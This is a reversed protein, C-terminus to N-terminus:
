PAGARLAAVLFGTMEDLTPMFAADAETVLIPHCFRLVAAHVCRAAREPDTPAFAGAAIGDAIVRALVAGIRAIHHQCVSWSEQMAAEIMEHMCPNDRFLAASRRHMALLVDALRDPAPRDEQAIALVVAELEAILGEVVAENIAKKSEFFRYINAPSMRLARAIDAVTTKQYGIDRFHQEAATVIRARTEAGAPAATPSPPPPVALMAPTM